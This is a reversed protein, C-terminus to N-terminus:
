ANKVTEKKKKKKATRPKFELGEGEAVGGTSKKYLTKRSLTQCVIAQAPKLSCNDQDRGRSYSPNYAHVM